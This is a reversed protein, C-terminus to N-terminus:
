FRIIVNFYGKLTPPFNAMAHNRYDIKYDDPIRNTLFNYILLPIREKSDQKLFEIITGLKETSNDYYYIMLDCDEHVFSNIKDCLISKIKYYGREKIDNIEQQFDLNEHERIFVIKKHFGTIKKIDDEYKKLEDLKKESRKIQAYINYNRLGLFGLIGLLLYIIYHGFRDLYSLLKDFSNREMEFLHKMQEFYSQFRQNIHDENQKKLDEFRKEVVKMESDIETLIKCEIKSNLAENEAYGSSYISIFGFVLLFIIVYAKHMRKMIKGWKKGFTEM